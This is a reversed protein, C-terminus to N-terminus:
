RKMLMELSEKSIHIYLDLVPLSSDNSSSLFLSPLIDSSDAGAM